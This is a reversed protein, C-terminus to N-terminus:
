IKWKGDFGTISGKIKQKIEGKKRTDSIHNHM